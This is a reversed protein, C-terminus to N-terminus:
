DGTPSAERWVVLSVYSEGVDTFLDNSEIRLNSRAQFRYRRGGLEVTTTSGVTLTRPGGGSAVEFNHTWTLGYFRHVFCARPGDITIVFDGLSVPDFARAFINGRWLAGVLQGREDTLVVEGYPGAGRLDGAATSSRVDVGLGSWDAVVDVPFGTLGLVGSAEETEITVAVADPYPSPFDVLAGVTGSVQGFNVRCEEVSPGYCASLHSGFSAIGVDECRQPCGDETCEACNAMNLGCTTILSGVRVNEDDPLCWTPMFYCTDDSMRRAFRPPGVERCRGAEVESRQPERTTVVEPEGLLYCGRDNDVTVRAGLVDVQEPEDIAGDNDSCGVVVSLAVPFTLARMVATPSTAHM